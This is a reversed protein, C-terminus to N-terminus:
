WVAKVPTFSTRNQRRSMGPYDALSADLHAQCRYWAAITKDVDRFTIGGVAGDLKLVHQTNVTRSLIDAMVGYPRFAINGLVDKGASALLLNGLDSPPDIEFKGLEAAIFDTVGEISSFDLPQSSM